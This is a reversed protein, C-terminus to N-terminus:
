ITAVVAAQRRLVAVAILLLVVTCALVVGIDLLNGSLTGMNQVSNYIGDALYYTPLVKVIQEIPNNQLLVNLVGVFIAPIIYIFSALGAVGGAASSSNFISGFLLGLALCFSAGLLTYLLTMGVQGVFGGQILLVVMSLLLQYGLVILLKGLIVDGFSAPTVMLMRLTKKEKEEILLGPMLSTGVLFSVLLATMVYARSVDTAVNFTSPPNILTTTITAPPQPNAVERTYTSVANQIAQGDLNNLDDGNLYLTLQPHGGQRLSADFNAPVIIGIAYSSSKHSGNPGFAATVDGPANAQVLRADTFSSKVAQVVNSHGSDYVLIDYTNTTLLSGILAFLVSLAIPTILLFLTSKNLLIDLADKRAIALISRIHM